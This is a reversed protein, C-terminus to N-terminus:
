NATKRCSKDLYGEAILHAESWETILPERLYSAPERFRVIRAPNGAVIAGRPVNATVVSGSGIVAYDDVVVGPLIIACAGIWVHSGIKVPRDIRKCWMPHDNYDHTSTHIVTNLAIMTNDGIEIPATGFLVVRGGFSVNKGITLNKGDGYVITGSPFRYKKIFPSCFTRIVDALPM